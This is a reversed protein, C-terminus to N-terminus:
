TWWYGWNLHSAFPIYSLAQRKSEGESHGRYPLQTVTPMGAERTLAEWPSFLGCNQYSQRDKTTPQQLSDDVLTGELLFYMIIPLM